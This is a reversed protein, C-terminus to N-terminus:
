GVGSIREADAADSDPARVGDATTSTGTRTHEVPQRSSEASCSRLREADFVPSPDDSRRARDVRPRSGSGAPECRVSRATADAHVATQTGRRRVRARRGRERDGSPRSRRRECRVLPRRWRRARGVVVRGVTWVSSSRSANSEPM